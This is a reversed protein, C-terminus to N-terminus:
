IFDCVLSCYGHVVARHDLHLYSTASCPMHLCARAYYARYKNAYTTWFNAILLTRKCHFNMWRWWHGIGYSKMIGVSDMVLEPYKDNNHLQALPLERGYVDTIKESGSGGSNLDGNETSVITYDGNETTQQEPPSNNNVGPLISARM